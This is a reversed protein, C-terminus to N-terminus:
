QPIIATVDVELRLGPMGLAAAQLATVVPFPRGAFLRERIEIEEGLERIDQMYYTIKIVNELSGGAAELVDAINRWVQEAQEAVTAGVINGDRDFAVQGALYVTDGHRLAYSYPEPPECLEDTTIEEFM